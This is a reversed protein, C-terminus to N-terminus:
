EYYFVVAASQGNTFLAGNVVTIYSKVLNVRVNALEKIIGSNLHGVLNYYPMQYVVEQDAENQLTLLLGNPATIMPAGSPSVSLSTAYVTEIGKIIKNRIKPIDPFYYRQNTAVTTLNVEVLYSNRIVLM